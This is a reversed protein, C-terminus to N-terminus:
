FALEEKIEQKKPRNAVLMKRQFEADNIAFNVSTEMRNASLTYKPLLWKIDEKGSDTRYKKYRIVLLIDDKTWNGDSLGKAIELMEKSDNRINRKPKIINNWQEALWEAHLKYSELSKKRQNSTTKEVVEVKLEGSSSLLKEITNTKYILITTTGTQDTEIINKKRLRDFVLQIERKNFPYREEAKNFSWEVYEKGTVVRQKVTPLQFSYLIDHLIIADKCNGTLTYETETFGFLKNM